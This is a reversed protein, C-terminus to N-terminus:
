SEENTMFRQTDQLQCAIEFMTESDAWTLVGPRNMRQNYKEILDEIETLFWCANKYADNWAERSDLTNMKM